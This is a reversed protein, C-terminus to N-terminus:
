FFWPAFSIDQNSCFKDLRNKFLQVSDVDVADNPLSNWSNVIRSTFTLVETIM